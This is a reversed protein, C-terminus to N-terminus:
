SLRADPGKSPNSKRYACSLAHVTQLQAMPNLRVVAPSYNAVPKRNHTALACPLQRRPLHPDVPARHRLRPTPRVHACRCADQV